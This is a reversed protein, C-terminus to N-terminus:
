IHILSLDMNYYDYDYDYDDGDRARGKASWLPVSEAVGGRGWNFMVSGPFPWHFGDEPAGIPFSAGLTCCMLSLFGTAGWPLNAKAKAKAGPPGKPRRRRGVTSQVPPGQSGSGSMSPEPVGAAEGQMSVDAPSREEGTDGEPSPTDVMEPPGMWRPDGAVVVPRGTVKAPRAMMVHDMLRYPDRVVERRAAYADKALDVAENWYVGDPDGGFEHNGTMRWERHITAIPTPVYVGESTWTGAEPQFEDDVEYLTNLLTTVEVDELEEPAALPARLEIFFRGVLDGPRITQPISRTNFAM